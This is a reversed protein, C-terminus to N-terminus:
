LNKDIREMYIEPRALKKFGFKEYLGHADDTALGWKKINQLKPHGFIDQMLKKGLGKKRYEELIFVDLIWAFIVFDSVVRAFGVQNNNKEYVGFCLSNRISKEVMKKNRDKAWYSHNSLFDHIVEYDLKTKDTSFYYSGDKM